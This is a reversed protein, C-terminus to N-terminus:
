DDGEIRRIVARAHDLRQQAEAVLCGDRGAYEEVYWKAVTLLEEVHHAIKEQLLNIEFM